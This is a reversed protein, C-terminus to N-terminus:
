ESGDGRTAWATTAWLSLEVEALAVEGRSETETARELLRAMGARYEADSLIALQSTTGKDLRGQALASRLEFRLSVRQAEFTSPQNLGAELMMSRIATTSPYRACDRERAGDFVEYIWWRDSGVHPDLGCVMVGGRQRLVRRAETVFGRPDDFHHIANICLVRDFSADPWPLQEARGHVLEVDPLRDRAQDLMESSADIGAVQLGRAALLALWHGTGCGVELVRGGAEGAFGLAAREVGGYQYDRYRADYGAAIGDYDVSRARM